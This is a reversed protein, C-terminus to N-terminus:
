RKFGRHGAKDIRHPLEEDETQIPIDVGETEADFRLRRIVPDVDTMVLEDSEANELFALMTGNRAAKVMETASLEFIIKM